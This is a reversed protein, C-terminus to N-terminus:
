EGYKGKEKEREGRSNEILKFNIFLNSFFFFPKVNSEVKAAIGGKKGEVM